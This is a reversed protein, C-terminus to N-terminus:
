LPKGSLLRGYCGNCIRKTQGMVTTWTVEVKTIKPELCRDCVLEFSEDRRTMVFQGHDNHTTKTASM